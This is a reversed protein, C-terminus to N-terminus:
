KPAGPPGSYGAAAADGERVDVVLAEVIGAPDVNREVAERAVGLARLRAAVAPGRLSGHGPLAERAAPDGAALRGHLVLTARLLARLRRRRGELDGGSGVLWASPEAAGAGDGGGGPALARALAAVGTAMSEGALDAVEEEGTAAAALVAAEAPGAAAAAAARAIAGDGAPPFRLVACRSLVTPLLARPSAVTLFMATERPPDELTKLLSNQAQPTLREAGPVLVVRAGGEVPRLALRALLAEVVEVGIGVRGSAPELRHLDPHLGRGVRGCAPCAGCPTGAGAGGRTCLLAMAAEEAAGEREASAPGVLLFPRAWRGAAVAARLMRRAPIESPM